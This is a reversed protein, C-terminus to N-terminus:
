IPPTPNVFPIVKQEQQLVGPNLGQDFPTQAVAFVAAIQDATPDQVKLLRIIELTAPIGYKIAYEILLPLLAQM